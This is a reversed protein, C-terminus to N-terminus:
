SKVEQVPYTGAKKMEALAQGWDDMVTWTADVWESKKKPHEQKKM